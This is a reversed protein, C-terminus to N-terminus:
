RSQSKPNASNNQKISAIFQSGLCQFMDPTLKNGLGNSIGSITNSQCESLIFENADTKSVSAYKQQELNAGFISVILGSCLFLIWAALLLLMLFKCLLKVRNLVDKRLANLFSPFRQGLEITGDTNSIDM